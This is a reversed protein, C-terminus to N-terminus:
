FGKLTIKPATMRGSGNIDKHPHVISMCLRPPWHGANDPEFVIFIDDGEKLHPTLIKEGNEIYQHVYDRGYKDEFEKLAVKDFQLAM